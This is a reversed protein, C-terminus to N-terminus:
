EIFDHYFKLDNLEFSQRQCTQSCNTRLKNQITYQIQAYWIVLYLVNLIGTIDVATCSISEDDDDDDGDNYDDDSFKDDDDDEGDDDDDDDDDDDGDDDDVDDCCMVDDDDNNM